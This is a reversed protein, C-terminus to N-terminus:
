GQVTAFINECLKQNFGGYPNQLYTQLSRTTLLTIYNWIVHSFHLSIKETCKNKVHYQKTLTLYYLWNTNTIIKYKSVWKLIIHANNVFIYNKFALKLMRTSYTCKLFFLKQLDVRYHLSNCANVYSGGGIAKLAKSLCFLYEFLFINDRTSM